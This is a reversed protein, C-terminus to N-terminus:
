RARKARPSALPLLGEAIELGARIRSDSIASPVVRLSRTTGVEADLVPVLSLRDVDAVGADPAYVLGLEAAACQRLFHIDSGHLAPSVRRARDRLRDTPEREGAGGVDRADVVSQCGVGSQCESRLPRRAKLSM